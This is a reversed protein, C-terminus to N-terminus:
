QERRRKIRTTPASTPKMTMAMKSGMKLILLAM